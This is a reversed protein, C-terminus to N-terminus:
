KAGPVFLGNLPNNPNGMVRPAPAQPINAGFQALDIIDRMGPSLEPEENPRTNKEIMDIDAILQDLSAKMLNGFPMMDFSSKLLHPLNRVLQTLAKAMATAIPILQKKLETIANQWERDMRAQAVLLAQYEKENRNAERMDAFFKQVEIEAVTQALVPNLGSLEKARDGLSDVIGKFVNLSGGALKLASAFMGGVIPIQGVVDAATDVATTLAGIGDNSALKQISQGAGEVGSKITDFAKAIGDFADQVVGKAASVIEGVVTAKGAVAQLGGGKGGLGGTPGGKLGKSERDLIVALKAVGGVLKGLKGFHASLDDIAETLKKEAKLREKLAEGLESENKLLASKGRSELEWKKPDVPGGGPGPNSPPPLQSKGGPPIPPPTPPQPGRPPSTGPTPPRPGPNRPSPPM